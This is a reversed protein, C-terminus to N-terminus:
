SSESVEIQHYDCAAKVSITSKLPCEPNRPKLQVISKSRGVLSGVSSKSRVLQEKEDQEFYFRPSPSSSVPLSLCRCCPSGGLLCWAGVCARCGGLFFIQPSCKALPLLSLPCTRGRASAPLSGGAVGEEPLLSQQSSM